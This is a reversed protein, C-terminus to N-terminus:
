TGSKAVQESGIAGGAGPKNEVIVAQGLQRGLADAMIRGVIDTSTGAGFPVVLKLPRSSPAQALAAGAALLASALLVRRTLHRTM